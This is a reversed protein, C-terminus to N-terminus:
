IKNGKEESTSKSKGAFLKWEKIKNVVFFFFLVKAEHFISISNLFTLIKGLIVKGWAPFTEFQIWPVKGNSTFELTFLFSSPMTKQPINM